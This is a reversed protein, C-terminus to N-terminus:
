ESPFGACSLLKEPFVGWIVSIKQSFRFKQFIKRPLSRSDRMSIDEDCMVFRFVLSFCRRGLRGQHLASTMKTLPVRFRVRGEGGLTQPRAPAAVALWLCSLRVLFPRCFLFHCDSYPSCCCFIELLFFNSSDFGWLCIIHSSPIVYQQNLIRSSLLFSLFTM